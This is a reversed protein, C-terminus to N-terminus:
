NLMPGNPQTTEHLLYGASSTEHVVKMEYIVYIEKM